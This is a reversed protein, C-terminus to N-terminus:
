AFGYALSTGWPNILGVNFRKYCKKNIDFPEILGCSPVFTYEEIIFGNQNYSIAHNGHCGM